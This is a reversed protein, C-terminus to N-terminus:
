PHDFVLQAAAGTADTFDITKVPKIQLSFLGDTSVIVTPSHWTRAAYSTETLPSSIGGSGGGKGNNNLAASKAAGAAPRNKMPEVPQAAGQAEETLARLAETLDKSM